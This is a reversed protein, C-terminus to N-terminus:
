PETDDIYSEFRENPPDDPVIWIRDAMGPLDNELREAPHDDYTDDQAVVSSNAPLPDQHAGYAAAEAELQRRAARAARYQHAAMLLPIAAFLLDKRASRFAQRAEIIEEDTPHTM